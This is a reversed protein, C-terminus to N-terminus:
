DLIIKIRQAAVLPLVFVPPLIHEVAVWTVLGLLVQTSVLVIIRLVAVLLVNWLIPANGMLAASLESEVMRPILQTGIVGWEEVIKERVGFM